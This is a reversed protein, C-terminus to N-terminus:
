NRPPGLNVRVELVTLEVTMAADDGGALLAEMQEMQARLMGEIMARQGEPLEALRRRMEELEARMEPDIAAGIGEMRVLTRHPLLLGQENRYDQLEIVSTVDVVRDGTDLDGAFEMRRPVWLAADILIRGTRPRFEADESPSAPALDLVRLDDILLVHVEHGDVRETGGYRAHEALDPAIAYVDQLGMDDDLDAAFGAATSQKLQFVSRGERAEKEYYLETRFGMIDQVVTYNEVAATSREYADLMRGVIDAPTQAAAGSAALIAALGLVIPLRIV